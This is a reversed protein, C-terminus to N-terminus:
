RDAPAVDCGNPLLLSHEDHHALLLQETERALWATAVLAHDTDEIVISAM